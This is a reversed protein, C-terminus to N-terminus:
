PVSVSMTVFRELPVTVWLNHKAFFTLIPTEPGVATKKEESVAIGIEYM